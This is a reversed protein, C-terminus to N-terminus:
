VLKWREDILRYEAALREASISEHVRDGRASIAWLGTESRNHLTVVISPDHLSQWRQGRALWTRASSSSV